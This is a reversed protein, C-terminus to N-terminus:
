RRGRIVTASLPEGSIEVPHFGSLVPEQDQIAESVEAHQRNLRVATVPFAPSEPNPVKYTLLVGDDVGDRIARDREAPSQARQYGQAPLFLDRFWKLSVFEFGPRREAKWLARMLEVRLKLTAAEQSVHSSMTPDQHYSHSFNEVEWNGAAPGGFRIRMEGTAPRWSELSADSRKKRGNDGFIDVEISYGAVQPLHARLIGALSQELASKVDRITTM